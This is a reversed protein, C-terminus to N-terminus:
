RLTWLANSLGTSLPTLRDTSVPSINASKPGDPVPFLTSSLVVIPRITGSRPSTSTSPTDTYWLPRSATSAM